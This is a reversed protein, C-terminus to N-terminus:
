LINYILLMAVVTNTAYFVSDGPQPDVSAYRVSGVDVLSPAIGTTNTPFCVGCVSTPTGDIRVVIVAFRQGAPIELLGASFTAFDGASLSKAVTVVPISTIMGSQDVFAIVIKYTGSIAIPVCVGRFVIADVALFLNGKAAYSSSSGSQTLQGYMICIPIGSSDSPVAAILSDILNGKSDYKAFNGAIPQGDGAMQFKVGDGQRASERIQDYDMIGRQRM